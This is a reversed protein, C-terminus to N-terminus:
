QQNRSSFISQSSAVPEISHVFFVPSEFDMIDDSVPYSHYRPLKNWAGLKLRYTAGPKLNASPLLQGKEIVMQMTLVRREDLRGNLVQKVEYQASAVAEKYPAIERPNPAKSAKLLVAEVEAVFPSPATSEAPEEASDNLEIPSEPSTHVVVQSAFSDAAMQHRTNPSPWRVASLNGAAHAARAGWVKYSDYSPNHDTDYVMNAMSIVSANGIHRPM